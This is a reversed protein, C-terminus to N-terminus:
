TTTPKKTALAQELEKTLRKFRDEGPNITAAIRVQKLASDLNGRAQDLVALKFYPLGVRNSIAICAKYAQEAKDFSGDLMYLDGLTANAVMHSPNDAVCSEMLKIADATRKQRSLAKAISAQLAVPADSSTEFTREFLEVAGNHDGSRFLVEIMTAAAREHLPDIELAKDLLAKADDFKREALANKALQTIVDTDMLESTDQDVFRAVMRSINLDILPQRVHVQDDEWTRQRDSLTISEYSPFYTVSEYALAVEDAASRLTSKSYANAVIVDTNTRFTTTLPVPSVTLVVNLGGRTNANRAIDILEHLSEVIQSHSLVRVVFRGPNNSILSKLPASNLYLGLERDFWAEALGLTLILLRCNALERNAANLATRRQIATERDTPLAWRGGLHLDVVKSASVQYLHKDPDFSHEETMAWRVENLMSPSTYNNLVSPSSGDALARHTPIDFGLRILSKEVNRAFCSGITFVSSGPTIRFPAAFDPQCLPEVRNDAGLRSDPDRNPWLSFPNTKTNEIADDAEIEILYERIGSM